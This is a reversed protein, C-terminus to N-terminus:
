AAAQIAAVAADVTSELEDLARKAGSCLGDQANCDREAREAGPRNHKSAYQHAFTLYSCKDAGEEGCHAWKAMPDDVKQWEKAEGKAKHFAKHLNYITNCAHGEKHCENKLWTPDVKGITKAITEADRGGLCPTGPLGCFGDGKAHKPEPAADRKGGACFTGPLGCFGDGKAHKPEPAADRKGGACFTGPLGCFGDGKAHKPQPAAERKGGACFTGPLGCFGDGKAHKPSADRKGGACFTGPLGCFGDGKAHKPEPDANRKGGACFTGPLGCFGDGKAHKAHKANPDRVALCPTDGADCVGLDDNEYVKAEPDPIPKLDRGGLCMTGPLGCFGDGKAHKKHAEAVAFAEAEREYVASYAERAKAAIADIAEEALECPTGPAGCFSPSDTVSRADELADALAWATRKVTNCPNGPAGCYGEEYGQLEGVDRKPGLCPTGPLGCFGDGHAHKKPNFNVIKPTSPAKKHGAHPFHLKHHKHHHKHHHKDHKIKPVAHGLIETIGAEPEAAPVAAAQIAVLATFGLLLAVKM